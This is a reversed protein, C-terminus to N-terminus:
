KTALTDSSMERWKLKGLLKPHFDPRECCKEFLYRRMERTSRVDFM